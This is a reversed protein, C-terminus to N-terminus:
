IQNVLLDYRVQIVGIIFLLSSCYYVYDSGVCAVVLALVTTCRCRSNWMTKARDKLYMCVLEIHVDVGIPSFVM